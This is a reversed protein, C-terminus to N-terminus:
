ADSLQAEIRRTMRANSARTMYEGQRPRPPPPPPASAAAGM